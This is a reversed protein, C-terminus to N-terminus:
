FYLKVAFQMVRPDGSLNTIQGFASDTVGRDPYGFHTNNFANLADWRIDLRRSEGFRFSRNLSMDFQILDPGFLTNRGCNPLEVIPPAAYDATNFWHYISRNSNGAGLAGNGLCNAYATILGGRPGELKSSLNGDEISYPEGTRGTSIGSFRWDRLIQRAVRGSGSTSDRLAPIEPINYIYSASVVHRYDFDSNGRNTQKYAYHDDPDVPSGLTNLDDCDWDLSHSWTWNARFQLGHSFRKEFTVELGEYTSNSGDERLELTGFNPYPAVGTPIGNVFPNENLNTLYSLHTGKTGVYDVTLVMSAGVTHQFGFSWQDISAHVSNPNVIHTNVTTPSVVTPDLSLNIGTAVRMNNFPVTSSSTSGSNTVHWPLDLYMQDESGQREWLQYFRGYGTRLVWNPKFHYAIGLRPAWNEKDNKALSRGYASDSPFFLTGTVPNFNSMHNGAEYEWPSYDYRLGYNISLKPTVKWDDQFFYSMMWDRSDVITQGTFGGSNPYGMLYDAWPIGTYQGNFGMTGRMGPVDLYILRMPFHYDVGLKFQHTGHTIGLTDSEELGNSYEHKPTYDPSGMRARAGGAGPAGIGGGGSVTMGPLGGDYVPSDPVGKWGLSSLTNEGFPNQTENSHGRNWGIRVENLMTPSIIWDDGLAAGQSHIYYKGVSSSSAGDILMPYFAGPNDRFRPMINYRVFVHNNPRIQIDVRANYSNSNDLLPPANYYDNTNLAGSAPTLNPLPLYTIFTQSETDLCTAPIKNGVFSGNANIAAPDKALCDGVKDSITKYTTHNLTAEAPSFDGIRESATPVNGLLPIGQALRQGEYNFFFFARDKVIPGGINGGFQNLDYKSIKRGSRNTFFDTSDFKNNRVFEWGTGHFKDTGGKTVVVIAAGPSRGYEASYPDTLLRFEQIADVSMHVTEASLELVNESTSNNDVGDLLFNNQLSRVGHVNVIATRGSATSSGQESYRDGSVGSALLLLDDWNRRGLPLDVVETNSIDAGTQASETQLVAIGTKVEVVQTVAGLDLLFDNRGSEGVGLVVNDHIAKKFGSTEVSVAYTGAILGGLLYYGSSDTKTTYTLNTANNRATVLAGAVVAGSPDTVLGTVSANQVQSWGPLALGFLVVSIFVSRRVDYKHM